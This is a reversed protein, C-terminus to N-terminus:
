CLGAARSSDGRGKPAYLHHSAVVAGNFRDAPGGVQIPSCHGDRRVGAAYLFGAARLPPTPCAIQLKPYYCARRRTRLMPGSPPHDFLIKGQVICSIPTCEPPRLHGATSLPVSTSPSGAQPRASVAANGRPASLYAIPQHFPGCPAGRSRGTPALCM